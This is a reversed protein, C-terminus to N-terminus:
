NNSSSKRHISMFKAVFEELKLVATTGIPLRKDYYGHWYYLERKLKAGVVKLFEEILKQLILKPHVFDVLLRQLKGRVNLLRNPTPDALIEAALDVVVEEWGMPIPQDEAFPYNHAKCAELAMIARRLNQKAKTSIKAAFSMSIEFGEKLAIQLLVEMIEHTVPADVKIIKCRTKVSDLIDFDDECCLVLKCVDTYCDMIWKILHQINEAAKDVDYLVMVTYDAKFNVTSIEPTVSHNSSIQKILAMLAYKANPEKHVNLEVHHASSTVPVSVQMSRAENSAPDGYIERLYAMTLAKKGSGPPGKLLIHPCIDQDVLKKLLQAEHKRCTFGNLSAPQHKDAWFQRLSEVVFAKEIFSAEDFARKGQPPKKSRCSGSICPFWTDTQKKKRNVAFKMATGNTRESTDSMNSSQRSVGSSTVSSSSTRTLGNSSSNRQFNLNSSGNTNNRQRPSHMKEAPRQHKPSLGDEFGGNKPFIVKQMTVAGYERSFFIDGPSISDTSDLIPANGVLGKSIQVNALIENIEGVSPTNKNSAEKEKLSPNRALPSPTRGHKKQEAHNYKIHQDKERPRPASASRHSYNGKDTGRGNHDNAERHAQTRNLSGMSDTRFGQNERLLKFPSLHRRHETKAFPSNNRIETKAFPSVNKRIDTKAFPSATRRVETRAFPSVNNRVETRAFPSVNKRLESGPRSLMPSITRRAPPLPLANGEDRQKYPSKSHRRLGQSAKSSKAPSSVEQEFKATLRGLRLSSFNRAQDAGNSVQFDEDGNVKDHDDGPTEEQWETETDSPEYGSRAAKSNTRSLRKPNEM